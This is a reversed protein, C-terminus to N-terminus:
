KGFEPRRRPNQETRSRGVDIRAHHLRHRRRDDTMEVGIKQLHHLIDLAQQSDNKAGFVFDREGDGAGTGGPHFGHHRIQDLIAVLDHDADVAREARPHRFNRRPEARLNVLDLSLPSLDDLGRLDRRCQLRGRFGLQNRYDM